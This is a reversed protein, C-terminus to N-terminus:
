FKSPNRLIETLVSQYDLGQIVSREINDDELMESCGSATISDVMKLSTIGTQNIMNQWELTSPNLADRSPHQMNQGSALESALLHSMDVIFEIEPLKKGQFDRQSEMREKIEPLASRCLANQVIKDIYQVGTGSWYIKLTEFNPLLKVKTIQVSYEAFISWSDGEWIWRVIQEQLRQSLHKAERLEGLTVDSLCPDTSVNRAGVAIPDFIGNRNRKKVDKVHAISQL